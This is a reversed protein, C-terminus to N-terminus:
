TSAESVTPKVSRHETVSYHETVSCYETATFDTL